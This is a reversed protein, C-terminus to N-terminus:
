VGHLYHDQIDTVEEKTLHGVVHSCCELVFM